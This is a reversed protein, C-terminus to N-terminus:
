LLDAVEQSSRRARATALLMATRSAADMDAPDARLSGDSNTVDISANHRFRAPDASQLLFILLKDSGRMARREAEAVLHEVKVRKANDWRKAFAEDGRRQQYLQSFPIAVAAAAQRVSCGAQLLRFFEDEREERTLGMLVGPAETGVLDDISDPATVSM